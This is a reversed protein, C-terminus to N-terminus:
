PQKGNGAPPAPAAEKSGYIAQELKEVRARLEDLESFADQVPNAGEGSPLPTDTPGASVSPTTVPQGLAYRGVKDAIADLRPIIEGANGAQVFISRPDDNPGTIRVCRLDLSAGDGFRTFSGFVALDAGASRAASRAAEADTTAKDREFVRVVELKPNQELRTALMDAIGSQLYEQQELAHVVVPLVAVRVRPEASAAAALLPLVAAVTRAVRRFM